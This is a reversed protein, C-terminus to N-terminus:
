SQNKTSSFSNFFTKLIIKNKLQRLIFFIKPIKKNVFNQGSSLSYWGEGVADSGNQYMILACEVGRRIDCIYRCRCCKAKEPITKSREWGTGLSFEAENGHCPWMARFCDWREASGRQYSDRPSLTLTSTPAFFLLYHMTPTTRLSQPRDSLFPGGNPWSSTTCQNSDSISDIFRVCTRRPQSYSTKM